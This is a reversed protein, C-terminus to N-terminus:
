GERAGQKKKPGSGQKQVRSKSQTDRVNKNQQDEVNQNPARNKGRSPRRRRQRSQNPVAPSSVKLDTEELALSIDNDEVQEVEASNWAYYLQPGASPVAQQPDQSTGRTMGTQAQNLYMRQGQDFTHQPGQYSEAHAMQPLHLIYPAPYAQNAAFPASPFVTNHHHNGATNQCTAAYFYPRSSPVPPGMPNLPQLSRLSLDHIFRLGHNIFIELSHAAEVTAAINSQRWRTLVVELFYRVNSILPQLPAKFDLPLNCFQNIQELQQLLAIGQNHKYTVYQYDQQLGLASGPTTQMNEDAPDFANKHALIEQPTITNIPRARLKRLLFAGLTAYSKAFVEEDEEEITKEAEMTVQEQEGQQEALKRGRRMCACNSYNIYWQSFEIMEALCAQATQVDGAQLAQKLTKRQPMDAQYDVLALLINIVEVMQKEEGGYPNNHFFLLLGATCEFMARAYTQISATSSHQDMRRLMRKAFKLSENVFETAKDEPVSENSRLLRIASVSKQFSSAIPTYLPEVKNNQRNGHRQRLNEVHSLVLNSVLMMECSIRWSQPPLKEDEATSTLTKIGSLATPFICFRKVPTPILMDFFPYSRHFNESRIANCGRCLWDIAEMALVHQSLEQPKYEKTQRALNSVSIRLHREISLKVEQLHREEIYNPLFSSISPVRTIVRDFHFWGALSDEFEKVATEFTQLFSAGHESSSLNRALGAFWVHITAFKLKTSPDKSKVVKLFELLSLLFRCLKDNVFKKMHVSLNLPNLISWYIDDSFLVIESDDSIDFLTKIVEQQVKSVYMSSDKRLIGFFRELDLLENSPKMDPKLSSSCHVILQQLDVFINYASFIISSIDENKMKSSPDLKALVQLKSSLVVSRPISSVCSSNAPIELKTLNDLMFLEMKLFLSRWEVLSMLEEQELDETPSSMIKSATKLSSCIFDKAASQDNSKYASLLYLEVKLLLLDSKPRRAESLIKLAKPLEEFNKEKAVIMASEKYKGHARLRDALQSLYGHQLLLEEEMHPPLKQATEYFSKLAAQRQEESVGFNKSTSVLADAKRRLFSEKSLSPPLSADPHAEHIRLAKDYQKEQLLQKLAVAVFGHKVMLNICKDQKGVKKLCSLSCKLFYIRKSKFLEICASFTEEALEYEEAEFFCKAARPTWRRGCELLLEGAQVFAMKRLQASSKPAVFQILHEARMEMESVRDGSKAFCQSALQFLGVRKLNMGQQEWEEKTTKKAFSPCHLVNGMLDVVECLDKRELFHYMPARQVEDEDYLIVRVRARTIATYLQKLEECLILHLTEDFELPRLRGMVDKKAQQRKEQLRQEEEEDDHILCTLIVRWEQSARSDTFFNWLIVDDFELGKSELITMALCGDFFHPLRDKADQSRVLIVQHAGFEIQSQKRDAGLILIAIDDIDTEKLLMPRPGLFFGREKPLVDIFAPFLTELLSVVSSATGLIGNHTRYNVTLTCVDPIVCPQRGEVEEQKFLSKLDEFRFGIGTAITQCTDGSFFMDNKDECVKFFLALEAQTFDQAEDVYISHVRQREPAGVDYNHYIHHTVDAIDYMNLRKKEKEYLQFLDYIVDRSGKRDGPLDEMAESAKLGKFNPAMKEPMHLYEERSLFGQSSRLAKVSGKIYSHIEQFVSSPSLWRCKGSKTLSPWIRSEFVKFDVEERLQVKARSKARSDEGLEIFDEMPEDDFCLEDDDLPISDLMGVEEHFSSAGANVLSGDENRPWFPRALTADLMQLWESETLFLPFAESSVSWLSPPYDSKPDVHQVGAQMNKFSKRVQDRLVRNATVFVQNYDQLKSENVSLCSYMKWMRNIAISTKGTGSRGVLITSCTSNAIRRNIIEDERDDPLFPFEPFVHEGGKVSRKNKEFDNLSKLFEDSLAYFKLVNLSEATSVAPPTFILEEHLDYMEEESDVFSSFKKDEQLRLGDLDSDESLRYVRPIRTGDKQLTSDVFIPLLKKEVSSQRGSKHADVIFRMGRPVDDHDLCIKWLRITDTFAGIRPSYDVAYQWLFRRGDDFSVCPSEFIKLHKPTGKLCKMLSRGQEGNALRKIKHITSRLVVPERHLGFLQDKFERTVRLDWMCSALDRIASRDDSAAVPATVDEEAPDGGESRLEAEHNGPPFNSPARDTVNSETRKDRPRSQKEEEDSNESGDEEDTDHDNEQGEDGEHQLRLMLAALLDKVRQRHQVMTEPTKEPSEDATNSAPIQSPKAAEVVPDAEADPVNIKQERRGDQQTESKSKSKVKKSRSKRSASQEEQFKQLMAKFAGKSVQLVTKNKKNKTTVDAGNSLLTQTVQSTKQDWTMEALLHLCTGRESTVNVDAKADVLCSIMKLDRCKVAHHLAATGFEGTSADPDARRALLSKVLEHQGATVACCLPVDAFEQSESSNRVIMRMVEWMGEKQAAKMAQQFIQDDKCLRFLSPLIRMLHSENLNPRLFLLRVDIRPMESLSQSLESLERGSATERKYASEFAQNANSPILLSTITEPLNAEVALNFAYLDLDSTIDKDMGCSLLIQITEAQERQYEKPTQQKQTAKNKYSHFCFKVLLMDEHQCSPIEFATNTSSFDFQQKIGQFVLLVSIEESRHLKDVLKLNGSTANKDFRLELEWTLGILLHM